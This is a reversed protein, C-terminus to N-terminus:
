QTVVRYFRSPHNTWQSDSFNFGGNAAIITNTQLPRWDQAALNTCTEVVVTANSVCCIPFSFGDTQVGFDPSNNLIVPCLKTEYQFNAMPLNTGPTQSSSVPNFPVPFSFTDLQSEALDMPDIQPSTLPELPTTFMVQGGSASESGLWGGIVYIDGAHLMVPYITTFPSASALDISASALLTGDLSWLGVEIESADPDTGPACGLGSVEIDQSIAFSWGVTDSTYRVAFASYGDLPVTGYGTIASSPGQACACNALFIIGGFVQPVKMTFGTASYKIHEIQYTGQTL